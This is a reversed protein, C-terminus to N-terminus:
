SGPKHQSVMKILADADLAGERMEGNIVFAPTGDINAAEALAHAAAITASISPDEEDKQLKALDLGVQKAIQVALAPTMLDEESMMAFHYALYKDPQKRAALAIRATATSNPGKIPFEIFAFRTDKKHQLVYSEVAPNSARCYPCNYDFFEVFTTKANAPGVLFALKPDFFAKTGLKDVAKQRAADDSEQQQEQLKNSVEVLVTPHALLYDHIEADRNRDLAGMRALGLVVGVGLVAGGIGGLAAAKWDLTM